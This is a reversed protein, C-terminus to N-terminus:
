ALQDFVLKVPLRVRKFLDGLNEFGVQGGQLGGVQTPIGGLAFVELQSLTREM